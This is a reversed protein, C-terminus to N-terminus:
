RTPTQYYPTSGSAVQPYHNRFPPAFPAGASQTSRETSQTSPPVQLPGPFNTSYVAGNQLAPRFSNVAPPHQYPHAPQLQGYYPQHNLQPQPQLTTPQPAFGQQQPQYHAFSMGANSNYPVQVHGLSPHHVNNASPYHHYANPAPPKGVDATYGFHKSPPHSNVPPAYQSMPAHASSPGQPQPVRHLTITNTPSKKGNSTRSKKRTLCSRCTFDVKDWDRRPRGNRDDEANHCSIHQWKSCSGCSMLPLGDDRNRGRSGCMECDLEWDEASSKGKTDKKAASRKRPPKVSSSSNAHGNAALPKSPEPVAASQDEIDVQMEESQESTWEQRQARLMEREERELRRQERALERALREDEERRARTEQRRTRAMREDEEAKEQAHRRAAEKETERVALRSSRKRQM